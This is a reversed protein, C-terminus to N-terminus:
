NGTSPNSPAQGYSQLDDPRRKALRAHELQSVRELLSAARRNLVVYIENPIVPGSNKLLDLPEVSGTAWQRSARDLVFNM